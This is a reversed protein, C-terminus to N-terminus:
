KQGPHNRLSVSVIWRVILSWLFGVLLSTPILALFAMIRDEISLSSVFMVPCWAFCATVIPMVLLRRKVDADRTNTGLLFWVLGVMYAPSYLFAFILYGFSAVGAGKLIGTFESPALQQAAITTATAFAMVALLVPLSLLWLARRRFSRQFAVQRNESILGFAFQQTPHMNIYLM